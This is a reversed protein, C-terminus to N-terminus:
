SDLANAFTDNDMIERVIDYVADINDAVHNPTVDHTGNMNPFFTTKVALRLRELLPKPIHNGHCFLFELSTTLELMAKDGDDDPIM